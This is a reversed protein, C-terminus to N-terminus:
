SRNQTNHMYQDTTIVPAGAVSHVQPRGHFDRPEGGLFNQYPRQPRLFGSAGRGFFGARRRGADGFFAFRHGVTSFKSPRGGFFRVAAGDSFKAARAVQIKSRGTKWHVWNPIQRGLRIESWSSKLRCARAAWNVAHLPSDPRARKQARKWEEGRRWRMSSVTVSFEGENQAANCRM